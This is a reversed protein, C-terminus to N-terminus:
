RVELVLLTFYRLMDTFLLFGLVVLFIGSVLSVVRMYRNLRRLWGSIASFAAGAILFPIGLGLSYAALLLAGKGVTATNSALLLIAALIPGVCPTWGASFLIGAVLSSGYGWKPNRSFDWRKEKYLLPIKVLGMVHLGFLIIVLGGLKQVWPMISQLLQGMLGVSAGMLVFIFSFGLVFALSHFFITKRPIERETVVSVGSLYGLYAPVLPLICPSFFSLVGAGLAVLVNVNQPQVEM